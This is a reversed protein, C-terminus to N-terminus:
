CVSSAGSMRPVEARLSQGKVQTLAGTDVRDAPAFCVVPLAIRHCALFFRPSALGEAAPLGDLGSPGKPLQGLQSRASAPPVPVLPCPSM